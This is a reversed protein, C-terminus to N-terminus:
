CTIQPQTTLQRAAAVLAAGVEGADAFRDTPNKELCRMVIAELADPLAAGLKTSPRVPRTEAHERFLASLAVHNFPPQGALMEYLVCGLAYVDSRADVLGVGFAEPAMYRPTGLVAGDRTLETCEPNLTLKAVGFDLLKVFDAQGAVTAVFVNSPKLDRHIVGIRHAEALADCVQRMLTVAREPPLAGHERLLTALDVGDLLEMAYFWIGDPTVGRDLIRVTNPHSLWTIALAEREFRAIAEGDSSGRLTLVKLAVDQRLGIHHAVWVEGMGGRGILRKLRYRGLNRAEYAERRLRWMANGCGIGTLAASIGIFNQLGFITLSEPQGFQTAIASEFPAAALMTLPFSLWMSLYPLVGARLPEAIFAARIMIVLMIGSAYRSELGGYRVCMLSLVVCAIVFTGVRALPVLKSGASANRLALFMALVVLCGVARMGTLWTLLESDGRAVLLDLLTFPPWLLFGLGHSARLRRLMDEDEKQEIVQRYDLHLSSRPASGEPGTLRKRIVEQLLRGSSERDDRTAVARLRSSISDGSWVPAAYCAALVLV